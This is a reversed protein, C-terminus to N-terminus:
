GRGARAVARRVAANVIRRIAPLNLDLAPRLFPRAPRAPVFRKVKKFQQRGRKDRGSSRRDGPNYGKTGYEIFPAYFAKRQIAKTRFGFEVRLGKDRKGIAQRSALAKRLNGTRVPALAIATAQVMRIGQDLAQTIESRADEPLRKMARRFKAGGVIRSAM